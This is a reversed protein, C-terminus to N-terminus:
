HLKSKVSLAQTLYEANVPNFKNKNSVDTMNWDHYLQSRVLYDSQFDTDFDRIKFFHFLSIKILCNAICKKLFCNKKIKWFCETSKSFTFFHFLSIAIVRNCILLLFNWMAKWAIISIIICSGEENYVREWFVHRHSKKRKKRKKQISKVLSYKYEMTLPWLFLGEQAWLYM